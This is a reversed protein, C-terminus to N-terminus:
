RGYGVGLMGLQKIFHDALGVAQETGLRLLRDVAYLAPTETLPEHEDLYDIVCLLTQVDPKPPIELTAHLENHLGREAPITLRNRILKEHKSKYDARPYLMHHCDTYSEGGM